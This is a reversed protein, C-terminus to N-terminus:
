NYLIYKIDETDTIIEKKMELTTYTRRKGGKIFRVFNIQNISEFFCTKYNSIYEVMSKAKYKLM